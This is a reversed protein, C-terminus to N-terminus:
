GHTPLLSSMVEILQMPNVAVGNVKVGWHLHPGSVRGTAGTLGLRQGKEIHQGPTVDIRSLHAYITFIGTGHDIVVANGSYFLNEALKVVGSNAAFVPAASRARFDVGNHFSKLQGNFVRKNGFPSTIDSTMPLQFDGDWLRAISGEAYTRKIKRAEKKARKINKKNPNVRSSDVKLEDIKYKGAVIRFPITRHHDGTANTWSLVLNAPGPATRFPIAILGFHNDAPTVPHPYVPYGRQQFTLRLDRVPPSLKRNEIQLLLLSGNTVEKSSLTIGSLSDSQNTETASVPTHLDWFFILAIVVLRTYIVATPLHYANM